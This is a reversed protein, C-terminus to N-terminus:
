WFNWFLLGIASFIVVVSLYKPKDADRATM